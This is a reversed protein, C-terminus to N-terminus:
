VIHSSWIELMVYQIYKISESDANMEMRNFISSFCFEINITHLISQKIVPPISKSYFNISEISKNLSKGCFTASLSYSIILNDEM